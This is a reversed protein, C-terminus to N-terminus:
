QPVASADWVINKIYSVHWAIYVTLLAVGAVMAIKKGM